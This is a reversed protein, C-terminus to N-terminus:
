ETPKSGNIKVEYLQGQNVTLGNTECNWYRSTFFSIENGTSVNRCTVKFNKSGWPVNGSLQTHAGYLEKIEVPSLARNYLYVEDLQGVLSSNASENNGVFISPTRGALNPMALTTTHSSSKQGNIYFTVTNPSYTVALHQWKGNVALSKTATVSTNSLFVPRLSSLYVMYRGFPSVPDRVELIIDNGSSQLPKIWAAITVSTTNLKDDAAAVTLRDATNTLQVAQPSFSSIGTVCSVGFGEQVGDYGNGSLDEVLCGNDFSYRLLLGIHSVASADFSLFSIIILAVSLKNIKNM